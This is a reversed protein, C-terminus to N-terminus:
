NIYTNQFSVKFVENPALVNSMGRYAFGAPAGNGNAYIGFSKGSTDIYGSTMGQDGGDYSSGIFFGSFSGSGSNTSSLIWPAFGTGFNENNTWTNYIAATDTAYIQASARNMGPGALGALTLGTLFLISKKM